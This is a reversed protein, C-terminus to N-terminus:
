DPASQNLLVSKASSADPSRRGRVQAKGTLPPCVDSADGLDPSNGVGDWLALVRADGILPERAAHALDVGAGLPLLETMPGYFDFLM